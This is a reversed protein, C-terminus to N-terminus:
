VIPDKVRSERCYERVPEVLKVLVLAMVLAGFVRFEPAPISASVVMRLLGESTSV